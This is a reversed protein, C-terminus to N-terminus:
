MIRRSSDRVSSSVTSVTSYDNCHRRMPIPGTPVKANYTWSQWAPPQSMGHNNAARGGQGTPPQAKQKDRPTVDPRGRRQVSRDLNAIGTIERRRQGILQHVVIPALGHLASHSRQKM